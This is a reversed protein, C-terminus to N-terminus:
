GTKQSSDALNMIEQRFKVFKDGLLPKTMYDGVMLDTPCYKIDVEGRKILDTIFFYKINFHRTRKGCSSNGNLELKMSSQNDRYILNEKVAYGQAELFLKTWLVKSIIDDVSVLEAEASSRTNVKQKTSVNQVAGKGLTMAAGTHSRMDHHVAFSADLFWKVVNTRDSELRMVDDATRKLFGMMKKLKVWDGQNPEKVRTTLFAVAPMIDGRARKTVFLAKAVFTHFQEAQPKMLKKSNKDVKFLKDDWPLKCAKLEQPFEDVMAKVYDVMDVKLVGPESYDLIIALYDHRKGRVAKVAGYKGYMTNLWNHFEDNVTSDVHSSKLDDVHWTVTHQKGKVIRNAVCPDYPNVVFGIAEIDKRFKKYYLLSSQLMGYLAKLLEVYLVKVNKEYVVYEKYTEPDIELLMDVVAGKIKMMVREGPKSEPMSTQVFANPVDATMVDRREEAEITATLLISEIMATPSASDEKGLYERQTSGNACQRTKVTGDRKETLFILSEMAREKELATMEHVHRPRMVDRDHLQRVEKMASERGKGGFKKLGKNLSYTTVHSHHKHRPNRAAEVIHHMTIALVHGEQPDYYQPEIAQSQLHSQHLNLRSTPRVVRGSRTTTQPTEEEEEDESESADEDESESDSDDSDEPDQLEPINSESANTAQSQVSKEEDNILDAVEEPDIADYEEDVNDDESSSESQTTYEDEDEADQEVCDVGAFWASDYLITGTKSQIKLGDTMNDRDALLHVTDIVHQTLPAPTVNRRTITRGTALNLVEHGGQKNSLPRLYIADIARAEPTNSPKPEDHALVYTGFPVVCQKNYDINEQHLIM